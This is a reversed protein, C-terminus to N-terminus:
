YRKELEICCLIIYEKQWDEDKSIRNIIDQTPLSQIEKKWLQFTKEINIKENDTLSTLINSIKDVIINSIQMKEQPNEKTKKKKLTQPQTNSEINALKELAIVLRNNLIQNNQRIEITKDSNDVLQGFAYLLFSSAWSLIPGIIWWLLTLLIAKDFLCFMGAIFCVFSSIIACAISLIKIKGGIDNYM